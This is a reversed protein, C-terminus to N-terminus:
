KEYVAIMLYEASKSTKIPFGWGAIGSSVIGHFSDINTLGYSDENNAVITTFVGLPWIQGAHTHGSVSLDVGAQAKEEYEVPQHDLVLIFREKDVDKLLSDISQRREKDKGKYSADLRGVLALDSGINVVDDELITIGADTIASRLDADTYNGRSSAFGNDDHNGYVFYTGYVTDVKGFIEFLAKMDEFPTSEDVIDGGLLLLHPKQSSIENAVEKIEEIDLSISMHVDSIFAIKYDQALSKETEITYETKVVTHMNIYGYIVTGVGIVVPLVLSSSVFRLWGWGKKSILRIILCCLDIFAAIVFIHLSLMGVVTFIPVTTGMFVAMILYKAIKVKKASTDFGWFSLFRGILNRLYFFELTLVVLLAIGVLAIFM